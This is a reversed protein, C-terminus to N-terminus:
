QLWRVQLPGLDVDDYIQIARASAGSRCARRAELVGEVASLLRDLDVTHWSPAEEIQSVLRLDLAACALLARDAALAPDAFSLGAVVVCFRFRSRLRQSVTRSVPPRHETGITRMAPEESLRESLRALAAIL